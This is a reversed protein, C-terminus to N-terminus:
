AEWFETLTKCPAKGNEMQNLWYRAIGVLDAVEQQTWGLRRRKLLCTESITLSKIQPTFHGNPRYDADREMLGYQHRTIGLSIAMAEQTLGDRRREIFFAEGTSLGKLVSNVLDSSSGQGNKEHSTSM